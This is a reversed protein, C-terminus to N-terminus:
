YFILRLMSSVIKAREDDEEAIKTKMLSQRKFADRFLSMLHSM